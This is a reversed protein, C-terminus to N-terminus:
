QTEDGESQGEEKYRAEGKKTRPRGRQSAGLKKILTM